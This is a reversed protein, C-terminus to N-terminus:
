FNEYEWDDDEDSDDENEFMYIVHNEDEFFFEEEFEQRSEIIPSFPVYLIDERFEEENHVIQLPLIDSVDRIHHRCLPCSVNQGDQLCKQAWSKMCDQCFTHLCESFYVTEISEVCVPCTSM